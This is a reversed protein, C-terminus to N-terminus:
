PESGNSAQAAALEILFEQASGAAPAPLGATAGPPLTPAAPDHGPAPRVELLEKALAADEAGIRAVEWELEADLLAEEVHRNKRVRKSKGAGKGKKPKPVRMLAAGVRGPQTLEGQPVGAEREAAWQREWRRRQWEGVKSLRRADRKAARWDGGARRWARKLRARRAGRRGVGAVAVTVAGISFVVAALHFWSALLASPGVFATMKAVSQIANGHTDLLPACTALDTPVACKTPDPVITVVPEAVAAAQSVSRAYAWGIWCVLACLGPAVKSVAGLWRLVRGGARVSMAAHQFSLDPLSHVLVPGGPRSLVADRIGDSLHRVAAEARESM